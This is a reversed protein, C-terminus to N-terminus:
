FKVVIKFSIALSLFLIFRLTLSVKEYTNSISHNLQPVKATDTVM